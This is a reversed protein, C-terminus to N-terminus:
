PEQHGKLSKTTPTKIKESWSSSNCQLLHLKYSHLGLSFHCVKITVTIPLKSEDPISYSSWRRLALNGMNVATWPTILLATLRCGGLGKLATRCTEGYQNGNNEKNEMVADSQLRVTFITPFSKHGPYLFKGCWPALM